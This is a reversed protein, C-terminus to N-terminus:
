LVYLPDFKASLDAGSSSPSVPPLYAVVILVNLAQFSIRVACLEVACDELIIPVANLYKKIICITVGGGRSSPNNLLSRDQRRINFDVLGLESNLIYDQLYYANNKIEFTWNFENALLITALSNTGM